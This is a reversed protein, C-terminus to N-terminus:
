YIINNNKKTIVAVYSPEHKIQTMATINKWRFFNLVQDKKKKEEQKQVEKLPEDQITFRETSWHAILFCVHM